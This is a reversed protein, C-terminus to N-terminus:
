KIEGYKQIYAPVYKPDLPYHRKFIWCFAIPQPRILAFFLSWLISYWSLLSDFWIWFLDARSIGTVTAWRVMHHGMRLGYALFSGLAWCAVVLWMIIDNM